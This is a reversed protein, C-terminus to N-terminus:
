QVSSRQSAVSISSTPQFLFVLQPRSAQIVSEIVVTVLTAPEATGSLGMTPKDMKLQKLPPQVAVEEARSAIPKRLLLFLHPVTGLDVM